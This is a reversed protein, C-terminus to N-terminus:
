NGGGSRYVGLGFGLGFGVGKDTDVGFCIGGCVYAGYSGDNDANGTYAIASCSVTSAGISVGGFRTQGARRGTTDQTVSAGVPGAGCGATLNKEGTPDVANAPDGGVYIFRNAQQLDGDSRLPDPQTWRGTDPQYYRRGFHYLGAGVDLGGAFKVVTTAGSGSSSGNGDPDYTYERDVGSSTATFLGRTSGLSDDVVYQTGSASRQALLTGDPARTYYTTTGASTRSALGLVNNTLTTTGLTVLETNTPSLYSLTGVGGLSTMRNEVDYGASFSAPASTLNGDADSGYTAAGTPPSGCANSSIGTYRWCIVNDSNYGYSTTTTGSGTTHDLRVRNSANDFTYTWRDVLTGGGTDTEAQHLRGVTDYGYTTVNGSQDTVSHIQTNTGYDYTFSRLTTGSASKVVISKTKGSDDTTTTQTFGGPFTLKTWRPRTSPDSYGVTIQSGGPQTISTVRNAADYGYSVTGSTDTISALNGAADYGYSNTVGGPFTESTRRNDRDYTYSTLNGASDQRSTM